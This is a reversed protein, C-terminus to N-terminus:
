YYICDPNPKFTVKRGSRTVVSKKQEKPIFQNEQDFEPKETPKDPKPKSKDPNDQKVSQSFSPFYM